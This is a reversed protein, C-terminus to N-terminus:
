ESPPAPLEDCAIPEGLCVKISADRVFMTDRFVRDLTCLQRDTATVTECDKLRAADLARRYLTVAQQRRARQEAQASELKANAATEQSTRMAIEAECDANKSHGYMASGTFLGTIVASEVMAFVVTGRDHDHTDDIAVGIAVATLLAFPVAFILDVVMGVRHDCEYPRTKSPAYGGAISNVVSCGSLMVLALAGARASPV